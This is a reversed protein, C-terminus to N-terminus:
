NVPRDEVPGKLDDLDEPSLSGDDSPGSPGRPESSLPAGSASFAGAGWGGGSAPPTEAQFCIVTPLHQFILIPPLGDELHQFPSLYLVHMTIRQRPRVTQKNTQMQPPPSETRASCRMWLGTCFSKLEESITIVQFVCTLGTASLSCSNFVLGLCLMKEEHGTQVQRLPSRSLLFEYSM